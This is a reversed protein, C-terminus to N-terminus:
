FEVEWTNRSICNITLLSCGIKVPAKNVERQAVGGICSISTLTLKSQLCTKVDFQIKAYHSFEQAGFSSTSSIHSDNLYRRKSTHHFAPLQMALM